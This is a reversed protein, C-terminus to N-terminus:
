FYEEFGVDSANSWGRVSICVSRDLCVREGDKSFPDETDRLSPTSGESAGYCAYAPSWIRNLPAYAHPHM